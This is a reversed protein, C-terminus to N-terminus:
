RPYDNRALTTGDCSVPFPEPNGKGNCNVTAARQSSSGSRVFLHCCPWCARRNSMALSRGARRTPAPLLGGPRPHLRRLRSRRHPGFRPLRRLHPSRIRVPEVTTPAMRRPRAPRAALTQSRHDWRHTQLLRIAANRASSSGSNLVRLRIFAAAEGTTIRKTVVRDKIEDPRTPHRLILQLRPHFVWEKLGLGLSRAILASVL